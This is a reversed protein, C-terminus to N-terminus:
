PALERLSEPRTLVIRPLKRIERYLASLPVEGYDDGRTRGARHGTIAEHYERGIGVERAVSKFRHRFSHLPAAKKDGVGLKRIWKGLYGVVAFRHLTGDEDAFLYGEPRTRVFDLFGDEVLQPHLPVKRGVYGKVPGAEPDIVMFPIGDIEQVDQRRLQVVEGARAGTFACLWPVWRRLARTYPLQRDFSQLTAALITRAEATSFGRRQFPRPDYRFIVNTFPNESVVNAHVAYQFLARLAAVRGYHATRATMGSLILQDRWRFADDRTVLRPGRQGVFDCFGNIHSIWYKRHAASAPPDSPMWVKVLDDVTKIESAMSPRVNEPRRIKPTFRGPTPPPKPEAAPPRLALVKLRGKTRLAKLERERDQITAIVNACSQVFDVQARDKRDVGEQLMRRIAKWEALHTDILALDSRDDKRFEQASVKAEAAMKRQPPRVWLKWSGKRKWRQLTAYQVGYKKAIAAIPMGQEFELRFKSLENKTLRRM